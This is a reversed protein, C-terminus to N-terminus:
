PRDEPALVDALSRTGTSISTATIGEDACWQTVVAMVSPTVEGTVLYAGPAVEVVDFGDPLVAGLRELNLGARAQFRMGSAQQTLEALTGTATVVGSQMVVVQDALREVDVLDHTTLIVATGTARVDDVLDHLRTRAELDLGATPEDLFLVRPRGILASALKVLQFQGGSLRRMQPWQPDIGLREMVEPVSWPDTYLGALMRLWPGVRASPYLGGGQLMVGVQARQPPTWNCPDAGLVRARGSSPTRLGVCAEVTTTKGAGNPGILATVAAPPAQWSCDDVAKHSGYRITLHEIVVASM